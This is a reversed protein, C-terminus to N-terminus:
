IQLEMQGHFAAQYTHPQSDQIRSERDQAVLVYWSGKTREPERSRRQNVELKM